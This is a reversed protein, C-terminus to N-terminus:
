DVFQYADISQEYHAFLIGAEGDFALTPNRANLWLTGAEEGTGKDVRVYGFRRTDGGSENEFYYYLFERKSVTLGFRKDLADLFRSPAYASGVMDLAFAGLRSWGSTRPAKYYRHELKRSQLDYRGFNQPSEVIVGTGSLSVDTPAEGDGFQFGTLESVSGDALDVAVLRNKGAVFAQKDSADYTSGEPLNAPRKWRPAGTAIDLLDLREPSWVLLGGAHSQMFTPDFRIQQRWLVRGDDSALAVITKERRVLVAKEAVAIETLDEGKLASARWMVKGSKDIRLPGDKTLYAILSDESSRIVRAEKVDDETFTSTEWALQGKTLDFAALVRKDDGGKGTLLVSGDELAALWEADKRITSKLRWLVKGDMGLAAVTFEDDQKIYMALQNSARSFMYSAVDGIKPDDTDFLTKGGAIDLLILRGNAPSHSVIRMPTTPVFTSPLPISFSSRSYTCSFPRPPQVKCNRLDERSWVTEGTKRNLLMTQEGNSALVDGSPTSTLTFDKGIERSWLRVQADASGPVFWAFLFVWASCLASLTNVRHM